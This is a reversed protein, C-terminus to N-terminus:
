IQLEESIIPQNFVVLKKKANLEFSCTRMEAAAWNRYLSKRSGQQFVSIGAPFCFPGRKTASCHVKRPGRMPKAM